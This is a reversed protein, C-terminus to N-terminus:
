GRVRVGLPLVEAAAAFYEWARHAVSGTIQDGLGEAEERSYARIRSADGGAAALMRLQLESSEELYCAAVTASRIDGFATTIGHGRMMVANGRGLAM